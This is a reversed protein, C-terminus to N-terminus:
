VHDNVQTWLNTAFHYFPFFLQMFAFIILKNMAQILSNHFFIIQKTNRRSYNSFSRIKCSSALKISRDTTFYDSLGWFRFLSTYFTHSFLVDQISFLFSFGHTQGIPWTNLEIFVCFKTAVARVLDRDFWFLVNEVSLRVFNKPESQHLTAWSKLGAIM